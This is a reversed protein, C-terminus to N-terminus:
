SSLVAGWSGIQRPHLAPCPQHVNVPPPFPHCVLDGQRVGARKSLACSPESGREGPLLCSGPGWSLLVGALPSCSGACLEGVWPGRAGPSGPGWTGLGGPGKSAGALGVPGCGELGNAWPASSLPSAATHVWLWGRARDTGQGAGSWGARQRGCRPVLDQGTGLSIGAEGVQKPHQAPRCSPDWRHPPTASLGQRLM